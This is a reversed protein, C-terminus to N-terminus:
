QIHCAGTRSAANGLTPSPVPATEVAAVVHVSAPSPREVCQRCQIYQTAAPLTASTPAPVPATEVAAVVHVGHAAPVKLVADVAAQPRGSAGGSAGDALAPGAARGGVIAGTRVATGALVAVVRVSRSALGTSRAVHGLHASAGTLNRGGGRGASCARSPREVCNRGGSAAGVAGGSAADALAPGAARGGRHRRHPSRHRRVCRRCPRKPKCPRHQPCRQRPPRQCRHPKLRRWSTCQM